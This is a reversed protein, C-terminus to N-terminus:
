AGLRAKQGLNPQARHMVSLPDLFFLEAGADDASQQFEDYEEKSVAERPSDCVLWDVPSAESLPLSKQLDGREIDLRIWASSLNAEQLDAETEALASFSTRSGIWVSEPVNSGPVRSPYDTTLLVTPEIGQCASLVIQQLRGPVPPAFLDLGPSFLFKCTADRGTKRQLQVLTRLRLTDPNGLAEDPDLITKRPEDPGELPFTFGDAAPVSKALPPAREPSMEDVLAELKELGLDDLPIQFDRHLDRCEALHQVGHGYAVLSPVAVSVKSDTLPTSSRTTSADESEETREKPSEEDPASDQDSNYNETQAGKLDHEQDPPRGTADNTQPETSSKSDDANDSSALTSKLDNGANGDVTDGSGNGSKEALVIGRAKRVLAATMSGERDDALNRARKWIQRVDDADEISSLPRAQAECTPGDSPVASCIRGWNALRDAQRRSGGVEREVFEKFTDYEVLYLDESKIEWLDKAQKKEAANLRQKLTQYRDVDDDTLDEDSVSNASEAAESSSPM